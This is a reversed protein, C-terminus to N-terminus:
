RWRVEFSSNGHIVLEREATGGAELWDLLDEAARLDAVARSQWTTEPAPRRRFPFRGEWRPFDPFRPAAIGLLLVALLVTTVGLISM